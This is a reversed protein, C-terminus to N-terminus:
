QAFVSVCVGVACSGEDVVVSKRKLAVHYSTDWGEEGVLYGGGGGGDGVEGGGEEGVAM